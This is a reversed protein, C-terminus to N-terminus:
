SVRERRVNQLACCLIRSFKQRMSAGDCQALRELIHAKSLNQLELNNIKQIKLFELFRWEPQFRLM